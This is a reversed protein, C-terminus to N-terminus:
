VCTVVESIILDLFSKVLCPTEKQVFSDPYNSKFAAMCATFMACARQLPEQVVLLIGTSLTVKCSGFTLNVIIVELLHWCLAVSMSTYARKKGDRLSLFDSELRQCLLDVSEPSNKLEAEWAAAVGVGSGFDRNFYGAHIPEHTIFKGMSYKRPQLM